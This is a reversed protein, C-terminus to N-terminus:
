TTTAHPSAICLSVLSLSLVSLLSLSGGSIAAVTVSGPPLLPRLRPGTIHTEIWHNTDKNSLNEPLWRGWKDINRAFM